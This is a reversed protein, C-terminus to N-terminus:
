APIDSLDYYYSKSINGQKVEMRFIVTEKNTSNGATDLKMGKVFYFNDDAGLNFQRSLSMFFPKSYFIGKSDFTKQTFLIVNNSDFTIELHHNWCDINHLYAEMDPWTKRYEKINASNDSHFKAMKQFTEEDISHFKGLCQILEGTCFEEGNNKLWDLIVTYDAKSDILSQLQQVQPNTQCDIQTTTEVSAPQPVEEVTDKKKCSIIALTLIYFLLIKKM